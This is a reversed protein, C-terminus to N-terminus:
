EKVEEAPRRYFITPNNLLNETIQKMKRKNEAAKAKVDDIM